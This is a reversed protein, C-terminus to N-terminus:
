FIIVRYPYEVGSKRDFSDMYLIKRLYPYEVGSKRDFSDM